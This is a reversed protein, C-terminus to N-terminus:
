AMRVARLDLVREHETIHERPAPLAGTAGTSVFGMREYLRVANENADGVELRLTEYGGARAWGMVADILATAAGRGRVEPAVWMAYLSATSADDHYRAGIALGVDAGDRSAIFTAADPRALRERWGAATTASEEEATVWFADPADRLARLRLARVREFADPQIREIESVSASGLERM